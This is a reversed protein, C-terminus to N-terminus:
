APDDYRVKNSRCVIVLKFWKSFIDRLIFTIKDDDATTSMM